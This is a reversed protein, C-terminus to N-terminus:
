RRHHVQLALAQQALDDAFQQAEASPLTLMMSFNTFYDAM